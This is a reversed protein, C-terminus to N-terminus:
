SLARITSLIISMPMRGHQPSKFVALGRTEDLVIFQQLNGGFYKEFFEVNLSSAYGYVELVHSTTDDESTPTITITSQQSSSASAQVESHAQADTAQNSSQASASVSNENVVSAMSTSSAASSLQASQEAKRELAIKQEFVNVLEDLDRIDQIAPTLTSAPTSLALMSVHVNRLM